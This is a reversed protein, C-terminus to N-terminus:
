RKRWTKARTIKDYRQIETDGIMQNIMTKKKGGGMNITVTPEKGFTKIYSKRKASKIRSIARDKAMSAKAKQSISLKKKGLHKIVAGMGKTLLTM